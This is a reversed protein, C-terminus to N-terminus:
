QSLNHQLFSQRASVHRGQGHRAQRECQATRDPAEHRGQEPVRRPRCRASAAVHRAGHLTRRLLVGRVGEDQPLLTRHCGRIRSQRRADSTRGLRRALAWTKKLVYIIAGQEATQRNLPKQWDIFCWWKGNDRFVGDACVSNLVFKTQLVCLPWLDRATEEDGSAELYELVTAAYIATYDLIRCAGSRPSPREYADSNVLGNGGCTGALLYLSRKVIEFNRYTEYDALAELRLDGLWLRRDRKPGDEFVTQM